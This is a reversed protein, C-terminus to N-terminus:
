YDISNCVYNMILEGCQVLSTNTITCQVANITFKLLLTSCLNALLPLCLSNLLESQLETGNCLSEWENVNTLM